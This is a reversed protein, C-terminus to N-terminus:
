RQDREAQSEQLVGHGQIVRSSLATSFHSFTSHTVWLAWSREAQWRVKQTISDYKGPDGAGM